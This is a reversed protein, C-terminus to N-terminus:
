KKEEIKKVVEKVDKLAALLLEMFAHCQKADDTRLKFGLEVEGKRYSFSMTNVIEQQIQDMYKKKIIKVPRSGDARM